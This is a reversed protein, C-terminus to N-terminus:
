LVLEGVENEGDQRAFELSGDWCEEWVRRQEGVCYVLCEYKIARQFIFTEVELTGRGVFPVSM